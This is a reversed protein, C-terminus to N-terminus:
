SNGRCEKLISLIEEESSQEFHIYFRGVGGLASPVKLCVIEDATQLLKQLIDQPGVPFAGVLKHPKEQAISWLAAQITSGTAVGDDIVIVTKDKLDIKPCIRRYVKSRRQIELFQKQKEKNLYDEDAGVRHALGRDLFVEGQETISGIALEPNQPAGLKRSLVIDLPAGLGRAVQRAVILGGRPIGLCVTQPDKLYVLAEALLDGAERRDVFPGENHSIIKLKELIEKM